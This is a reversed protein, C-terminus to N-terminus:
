IRIRDGPQLRVHARTRSDNVRVEGRRVMRYILSRPVGKLERILFNDLRQGGFEDEVTIFSVKPSTRM